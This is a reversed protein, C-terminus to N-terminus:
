TKRGRCRRKLYHHPVEELPRVGRGAHQDPGGGHRRRLPWPWDDHAHSQGGARGHVDRSHQDRDRGHETQVM